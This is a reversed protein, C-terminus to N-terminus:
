REGEIIALISEAVDQPAIGALCRGHGMWCFRAGHVACPRCALERQHVRDRPGLPGFGFDLVTSGFIAVAPVRLGVALHMVGSDNTVVARCRGLLAKLAPLSAHVAMRGGGYEEASAVERDGEVGEEPELFRLTRIGRSELDAVLRAFRDAPWKKMRRSAGEAIGVCLQGSAEWARSLGRAAAADEETVRVRPALEAPSGGGIGAAEAYREVVHPIKARPARVGWYVTWRRALARSHQRLVPGHGELLRRSTANAQLDIVREFRGANALTEPDWVAGLPLGDFVPRYRWATAVEM